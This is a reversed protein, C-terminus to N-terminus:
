AAKPAVFRILAPMAVVAMILMTVGTTVRVMGPVGGSQDTFLRFGAAYILAAVPKYVVFAFLWGILKRFWMKGMETNTAAAALPLVGILLILMGNRVFMLGIQIISSVIMCGGLLLMLPLTLDSFPGNVADEMRQDFEKTRVVDDIFTQALGDGIWILLTTFMVGFLVAFMLTALSKVVEKLADGRHSLAMKTGAIILSLTAAMFALYMVRGQVFSIADSPMFTTENEVIPITDVRVWVTGITGVIYGVAIKMIERISFEFVAWFGSFLVEVIAQIVETLCENLSLIGCLSIM